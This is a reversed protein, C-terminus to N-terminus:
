VVGYRGSCEDPQLAGVIHLEDVALVAEGAVSLYLKGNQIVRGYSHEDLGFTQWVAGSAPRTAADDTVSSRGQVPMFRSSQLWTIMWGPM